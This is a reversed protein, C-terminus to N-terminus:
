ERLIFFGQLDTLKTYHSFYKKVLTLIVYGISSELREMMTKLGGLEEVNEFRGGISIEILTVPGISSVLPNLTEILSSSVKVAQERGCLGILYSNFIPYVVCNLSGLESKM